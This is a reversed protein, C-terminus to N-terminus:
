QPPRDLLNAILSAYIVQKEVFCGLPTDFSKNDPYILLASTGCSGFCGTCSTCCGFECCECNNHLDDSGSELDSSIQAHQHVKNKKPVSTSLYDIEKEFVSSLINDKFGDDAACAIINDSALLGVFLFIQVSINKLSSSM